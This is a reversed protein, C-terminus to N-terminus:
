AAAVAAAAVAAVVSSAAEFRANASHDSELNFDHITQDNRPMAAQPGVLEAVPAGAVMSAALLARGNIDVSVYEQALLNRVTVM